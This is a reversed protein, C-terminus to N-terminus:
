VFRIQEGVCAAGSVHCTGSKWIRHSGSGGLGVGARTWIGPLALSISGIIAHKRIPLAVPSSLKIFLDSNASEHWTLKALQLNEFFHRGRASKGNCNRDQMCGM